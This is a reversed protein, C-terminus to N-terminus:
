IRINFIQILGEDIDRLEKENLSGIKGWILDKELTTLKSLRILSPLKFNNLTSPYIIVDYEEKWNLKSTIFAVTIDLDTACLALAPRVKNGMLNTFPFPVLVIDGKKV